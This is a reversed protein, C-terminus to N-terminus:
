ENSRARSHLLAAAALLKLAAHRRQQQKQKLKAQVASRRQQFLHQLRARSAHRRQQIQQQQKSQQDNLRQQLLRLVGHLPSASRRLHELESPTIKIQAPSGMLQIKNPTQAEDDTGVAVDNQYANTGITETTVLKPIDQISVLDSVDPLAELDPGDLKTEGSVPYTGLEQGDMKKEGLVTNKTKSLDFSFGNTRGVSPEEGAVKNKGLIEVAQIIAQAAKVKAALKSQEQAETEEAQTEGEGADPINNLNLTYQGTNAKPLEEEPITDVTLAKLLSAAVPTTASMQILKSIDDVASVPNQNGALSDVLTNVLSAEDTTSSAANLLDGLNTDEIGLNSPVQRATRVPVASSLTSFALLFLAPLLGQLVMAKAMEVLLATMLHISFFSVVKLQVQKYM